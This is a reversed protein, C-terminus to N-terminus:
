VRSFSTHFNWDRWVRFIIKFSEIEGFQPFAKRFNEIQGCVSFAKKFYEIERCRNCVRSFSTQFNWDRWVQFCNKFYEIEGCRPFAQRFYDIEGCVLFAQRFKEIDGWRSFIKQFKWDSWVPDSQSFSTQFKWHTWVRFDKKSVNLRQVGPVTDIRCRSFGIESLSIIVILRGSMNRHASCKEPNLADKPPCVLMTPSVNELWTGPFPRFDQLFASIEVPKIAGM